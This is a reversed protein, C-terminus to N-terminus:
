RDVQPEVVARREIGDREEVMEIIQALKRPEAVAQAIVSRM